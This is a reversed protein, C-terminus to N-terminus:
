HMKKPMQYRRHFEWWWVWRINVATWHPLRICLFFVASEACRGPQLIRAIQKIVLTSVYCLQKQMFSHCHRLLVPCEFLPSVTCGVALKWALRCLCHLKVLVKAIWVSLICAWFGQVSLNLIHSIRTWHIASWVFHEFSFGKNKQTISSLKWIPLNELM